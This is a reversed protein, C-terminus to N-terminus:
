PCPHALSNAALGAWCWGTVLRVLRFTDLFVTLLGGGISMRWGSPHALGLRALLDIGYYSLPPQFTFLPSGLRVYLFQVWRPYVLGDYRNLWGM